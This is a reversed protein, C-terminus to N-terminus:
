PLRPLVAAAFYDRIKFSVAALAYEQAKKGFRAPASGARAFTTLLRAIM